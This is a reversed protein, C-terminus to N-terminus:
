WSNELIMCFNTCVLLPYRQRMSLALNSCCLTYHPFPSAARHASGTCFRNWNATRLCRACESPIQFAAIQVSLPEEAPLETTLSTTTLQCIHKTQKCSPFEVNSFVILSIVFSNMSIAWPWNTSNRSASIFKLSAKTSVTWCNTVNLAAEPCASWNGSASFSTQALWNIDTEFM